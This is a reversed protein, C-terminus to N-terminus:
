SKSDENYQGTGCGLDIVRGKILSLNRQLSENNIKLVLWNHSTYDLKNM